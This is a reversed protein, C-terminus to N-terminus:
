GLDAIISLTLLAGLLSCRSAGPAQLLHAQLLHAQGAARLSLAWSGEALAETHGLCPQPWAAQWVALAPLM